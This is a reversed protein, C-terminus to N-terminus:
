DKIYLGTPKKVYDKRKRANVIEKAVALKRPLQEPKEIGEEKAIEDLEDRTHKEVLEEPEVM